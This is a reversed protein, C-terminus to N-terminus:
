LKEISDVRYFPAPLGNNYAHCTQQALLHDVYYRSGVNRNDNRNECIFWLINPCVDCDIEHEDIEVLYSLPVQFMLRIEDAIAKDDTFGYRVLNSRLRLRHGYVNYIKIM